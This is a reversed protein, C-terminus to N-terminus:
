EEAGMREYKAELADERITVYISKLYAKIGSKDNVEWEYPNVILDTQIIDAFDLAGVTEEDLHTRKNTLSGITVVTPPRGKFNVSVHLYPQDEDGEEKAKLLKVNWGDQSMRNAVEPTLLVAFNRDGEANFQKQVGAFNRFIIRVDEMLVSKDVYAGKAM